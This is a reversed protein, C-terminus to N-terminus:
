LKQGFNGAVKFNTTQATQLTLVLEQKKGIKGDANHEISSTREFINKKKSNRGTGNLTQLARRV